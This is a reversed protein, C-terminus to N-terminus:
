MFPAPSTTSPPKVAAQVPRAKSPMGIRAGATSTPSTACRAAASRASSGWRGASPSSPTPICAPPCASRRRRSGGRVAPPAHDAHRRPRAGPRRAAHEAGGSLGLRRVLPQAEGGRPLRRDLGPAEHFHETLYEVARTSATTASPPAAPRRRAPPTAHGSWRTSPGDQVLRQVAQKIAPDKVVLFRWKQTNGGNAASAGARLIRAIMEDPVPDPKLRRMARTGHLIEFIDTPEAM